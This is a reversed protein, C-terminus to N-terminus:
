DTTQHQRIDAQVDGLQRIFPDMRRISGPLDSIARSAVDRSVFNGTVVVYWPRGQHRTEFYRANFAALQQNIFRQVNEESRSGMIQVTFNEAPLDLLGNDGPDSTETEEMTAVDATTSSVLAPEAASVSEGENVLSPEPMSVPDSVEEGKNQGSSQVLLIDERSDARDGTVGSETRVAAAVPLEILNGAPQEDNSAIAPASSEPSTFVVLALMCVLLVAAAAWYPAGLELLSKAQAPRAIVHSSKKLSEELAQGFAINFSGPVGGADNCLAAIEATQFPVEGEYGADALKLQVYANADDASLPVLEEEIVRGLAREGLVNGLMNTLQKEGVLLVHVAGETTSGTLTDIIKIVDSALEHADDVILILTKADLYLREAFQCLDQVIDSVEPSSAGIPLQELLADLFQGQNMFLTAQIRISFAEEAFSKHFENSLTSRGSGLPGCVVSVPAGYHAQEVLRQLVAERNAGAFFSRYRATAVFPDYSLGLQKVYDPMKM